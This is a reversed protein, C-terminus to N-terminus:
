CLSKKFFGTLGKKNQEVGRSIKLTKLVPEDAAKGM